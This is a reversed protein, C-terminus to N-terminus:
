SCAGGIAGGTSGVSAFAGHDLRVNLADVVDVNVDPKDMAAM